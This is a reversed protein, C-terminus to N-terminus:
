PLTLRAMNKRGGDLKDLVKGNVEVREVASVAGFLVKLPAAATLDIDNGTSRIGSILVKGTADRVEVWCDATFSVKLRAQGAPVPETVEAPAASVAAENAADSSQSLEAALADVEAQSLGQPEAESETVQIPLEPEDVAIEAAPEAQPAAQEGDNLAPLKLTGDAALEATEAVVEAAPAEGNGYQTQWWWITIGLIGVLFLWGSWRVRPDSLKVDQPVTTVPKPVSPSTFGGVHQVLLVEDLGLMRAYNRVYGRAFVLSPLADFDGSEIAEIYHPSLNMRAAVQNVSLGGAERAATLKYGPFGTGEDSSLTQEENSM